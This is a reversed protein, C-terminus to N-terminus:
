PCSMLNIIADFDLLVKGVSLRGIAMPIIFSDSDRSKVLISKQIIASCGAELEVIEDDM